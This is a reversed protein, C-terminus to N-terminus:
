AMADLICLCKRAVFQDGGRPGRLATEGVRNSYASQSGDREQNYGLKQSENNRLSWIEKGYRSHRRGNNKFSWWYNNQYM